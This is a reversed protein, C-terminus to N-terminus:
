LSYNIDAARGVSVKLIKKRTVMSSLINLIKMYLRMLSILNEERKYYLVVILILVLVNDPICYPFDHSFVLAFM